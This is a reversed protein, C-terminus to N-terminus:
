FLRKPGNNKGVFTQREPLKRPKAPKKQLKPITENLEKRLNETGKNEGRDMRKRHNLKEKKNFSKGRGGKNEWGEEAEKV